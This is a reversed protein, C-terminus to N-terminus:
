GTLKCGGVVGHMKEPEAIYLIYVINLETVSPFEWSGRDSIDDDILRYAETFNGVNWFNYAEGLVEGAEVTVVRRGAVLEKPEVCDEAITVSKIVGPFSKGENGRGVFCVGVGDSLVEGTEYAVFEDDVRLYYDTKEGNGRWCIEVGHVDAADWGRSSRYWIHKAQEDSGALRVYLMGRSAGMVMWQGGDEGLRFIEQSTRENRWGEYGSLRVLVRGSEGSVHEGVEQRVGEVGRDALEDGFIVFEACVGGAFMGLMMVVLSYILYRRFM